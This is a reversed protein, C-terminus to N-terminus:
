YFLRVLLEMLNLCHPNSEAYKNIVSEAMIEDILSQSAHTTFLEWKFM